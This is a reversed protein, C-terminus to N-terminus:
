AVVLVEYRGVHRGNQMVRPIHKEQRIAVHRHERRFAHPEAIEVPAGHVPLHEWMRQSGM